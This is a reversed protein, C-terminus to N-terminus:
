SAPLLTELRDIAHVAPSEGSMLPGVAALVLRQQEVRSRGRFAESVVRLEFHGPGAFRVSVEADPLASGIASRLKEAIRDPSNVIEFSM